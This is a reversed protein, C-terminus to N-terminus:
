LVISDRSVDIELGAFCLTCLVFRYKYRLTIVNRDVAQLKLPKNQKLTVHMEM